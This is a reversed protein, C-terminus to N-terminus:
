RGRNYILYESAQAESIATHIAGVLEGSDLTVSAGDLATAVRDIATITKQLAMLIDSNDVSVAGAFSVSSNLGPVDVAPIEFSPILDNVSLNADQMRQKIQEILVDTSYKIRDTDVLGELLGTLANEGISPTVAELKAIETTLTKSLGQIEYTTDRVNKKVGDLERSAPTFWDSAFNLVGGLYSQLKPDM